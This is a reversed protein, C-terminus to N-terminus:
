RKRLYYNEKSNKNRNRNIKRKKNRNIEIKFVKIYEKLFINVKMSYNRLSNQSTMPYVTHLLTDFVAIRSHQGM